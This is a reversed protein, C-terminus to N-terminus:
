DTLNCVVFPGSVATRILSTKTLLYAVDGEVLPRRGKHLAACRSTQRAANRGQAQIIRNHM